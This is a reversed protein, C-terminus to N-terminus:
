EEVRAPPVEVSTAPASADVPKGLFGPLELGVSKGLEHLPLTDKVLNQVFGGVSAEKSNGMVVVKDFKLSSVANTQYEVIKTLQETVLLNSAANASGAAQVIQLFGHAKGALVAEVAAAEGKGVLEIGEGEARKKLLLAQSEGEALKRIAEAEAQKEILLADAKGQQELKLVAATAEAQVERERKQIQASVLVNAEQTAREREARKLEAEKEALYAEELTKAEQVKEAIESIKKAEAQKVKLRSQSEAIKIAAENQGEIAEARASAVNVSQEKEAEAKGIEGRRTEDAVKIMADNIARAAAEQGLANIYGSADQIDTINANILHLGVKHLEVDVGETIGKILKERDSNIEEITMSAIVVRMQGMIIETALSRIEERSRGLLRAAANQMIDPLTSIGVIFSSPVDVRINQSSLAGQLPVDINIPNLDLYSYSQFVPLVFTSGGHYCRAPQGSGVRGFVILIKDPPCMRYRSFLWSSVVIIFLILAAVPLIAPIEAIINM